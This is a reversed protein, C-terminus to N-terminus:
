NIWNSFEYMELMDVATKSSGHSAMLVMRERDKEGKSDFIM